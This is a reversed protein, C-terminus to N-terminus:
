TTRRQSGHQTLNTSLVSGTASRCLVCDRDAPQQSQDCPEAHSRARTLPVQACVVRYIGTNTGQKAVNHLQRCAQLETDTSGLEAAQPRACM